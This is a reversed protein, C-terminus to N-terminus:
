AIWKRVCDLFKISAPSSNKFSTSALAISRSSEQEITLMHVQDAAGTLIMEPLISVGLGNQVMAIIAQDLAIEFRIKPEIRNEKFIRKVDHDCGDKPMIFLEDTIEELKISTKQSLSHDKAVICLMRDKKLPITEFSDVTPLSIFGFDVEGRSIWQEVELYNGEMLKIAISPYLMQFQKLIGPLWQISVSPFTGIRITGSELGKINNAEQKIQENKQIIERIYKLIRQGDATLSIGSRSRTLLPFGLESELSSIAHSVGSQTLHLTEAAKTLSGMEIVTSFIEYKAISM